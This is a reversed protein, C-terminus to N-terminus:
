LRSSYNCLQVTPWTALGAGKSSLWCGQDGQCWDVSRFCRWREGLKCVVCLLELLPWRGLVFCAGAADERAVIWCEPELFLLCCNKMAGALMREPRWNALLHAGKQVMTSTWNLRDDEVIETLKKNGSPLNRLDEANADRQGNNSWTSSWWWIEMNRLDPWGPGQSMLPVRRPM